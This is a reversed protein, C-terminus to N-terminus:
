LRMRAAQEIQALVNSLDTEVDRRKLRLVGLGMRMLEADRTELVRAHQAQGTVEVVLRAAPCLFDVVHPGAIAKRRFKLGALKRNRLAQWLVAEPATAWRRLVRAKRTHAPAQAM